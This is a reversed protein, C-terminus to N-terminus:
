FFLNLFGLSLSILFSKISIKISKKFMTQAVLLGHPKLEVLATCEEEKTEILENNDNISIGENCTALSTEVENVVENTKNDIIEDLPLDNVNTIQKINEDFLNLDDM